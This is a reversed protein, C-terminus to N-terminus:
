ASVKPTGVQPTIDIGGKFYAGDDIAVRSTKIDGVLKGDQRVEVRERADIDGHVIGVVVVARAKIVGTKVVGSAGVTLAHDLLEITGEVNGDIILDENSFIEGKITMGSGIVATREVAGQATKFGSNARTAM